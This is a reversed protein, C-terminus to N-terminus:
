PMSTHARKNQKHQETHLYLGQSPSIGGDLSDQQSHVPDLFQFLPWPGVFPQIAAMIIIIVIIIIIIKCWHEISYSHFKTLILVGIGKLVFIIFRNQCAYINIQACIYFM